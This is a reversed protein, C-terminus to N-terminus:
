YTRSVDIPSKPTPKAPNPIQQAPNATSANPPTRREMRQMVAYINDLTDAARTQMRLQERALASLGSVDMVSDNTAAVRKAEAQSTAKPTPAVNQMMVPTDSKSSPATYSAAMVTPAVSTAATSAPKSAAPPAAAIATKDKVGQLMLPTASAAVMPAAGGTAVPDAIGPTKALQQELSYLHSRRRSNGSDSYKPNDIAWRIYNKGLVRAAAEQDINPNALFADKTARYSSITEIEHRAFEAMATLSELGPKFDGNPLLLGRSAMLKILKDRRDGQWSFFGQNTVHNADDTHLGYLYKGNYSNERGVEATMAKAQAPSFGAKIFAQYVLLQNRKPDGKLNSPPPAKFVDAVGEIMSSAGAVAGTYLKGAGAALAGGGAALVGLGAKGVNVVGKGLAGAAGAIKAGAAALLGAAGAGLSGLKDKATEWWGKEVTKPKVGAAANVSQDNKDANDEIYDVADDYASKVDDVDLPVSEQGAFPSTSVKYPNTEVKLANVTRILDLKQKSLLVKDIEGLDSKGTLKFLETITGLYIPKFRHQFWMIWKELDEQQETDVGFIKTLEGLTKGTGLKAVQGPSVKVIKACEQELTIIKAVNEKDDHKYGYQAMRFRTLPANERTYHEYLKYGIYAATLALGVPSTIVGLGVRAVGLAVRGITPAARLLLKGTGLVARGALKAAGIVGKGLFGGVKGIFGVLTAASSAVTTILTAAGALLPAFKTILGGFISATKEAAGAGRDKMGGLLKAWRSKEEAREGAAAAQQARDKASGDRDGDGDTDASAKPKLKANLKDKIATTKDRMRELMGKRKAPEPAPPGMLEPEGSAEDTADAAGTDAEPAKDDAGDDKFGKSKLMKIITDLRNVVDKTSAFMSINVMDSFSGTISGLRKGGSKLLDTFFNMGKKAVDLVRKGAVMGKALALKALKAAFQTVTKFPKGQADVIGKKLDDLTLVVEIKEGDVQEIVGKIDSVRKVIAGSDRVRYVGMEMLRAYLRPKDLEDKVYVDEPGDFVEIIKNKLATAKERMSNVPSLAMDKLSRMRKTVMELITKGDPNFLGKQYDEISLVLNGSKDRVEGTIDSMMTITRNTNVDIYAGLRIAAGYIRPRLEGSVWVDTVHDQLKQKVGSATDMGWGAIGSVRNMGAKTANSGKTRLWGLIKPVAGAGRALGRAGAAGAREGFGMGRKRLDEIRKAYLKYEDTIAALEEDTVLGKLKAEIDKVSPIGAEFLASLELTALKQKLEDSINLSDTVHAKLKASSQRGFAAMHDGMQQANARLGQMDPMAMGSLDFNPMGLKLSLGGFDELQKLASRSLELAQDSYTKFDDHFRHIANEIVSESNLGDAPALSQSVGEGNGLNNLYRLLPVMGPLATSRANVVFERNALQANATDNAGSGPANVLEGSVRHIISRGGDFLGGQALGPGGGAPAGGAPAGAPAPPGITPQSLLELIKARDLNYTSGDAGLKVLGDEEMLGIQNQKAAKLVEKMADPLNNILSVYNNTLSNLKKRNALDPAFPDKTFNNDADLPTTDDFAFQTRAQNRIEDRVAADITTPFKFDSVLKAPDFDKGGDWALGIIYKRLEKTAEPSLATGDPDIQKMVRSTYFELTNKQASGAVRDRIKTKLATATEFKSSEFSFYEQEANADGTSIVKVERHIKSLWGPIVEEWTRITKNTMYAQKELEDVGSKQVMTQVENRGITSKLIDKGVGLWNFEDTSSNAFEKMRMPMRALKTMLDVDSASLIENAAIKKKIPDILKNIVYNSAMSGVGSGAINLRLDDVAADGGMDRVTDLQGSLSDQIDQAGTVADNIHSGISGFFSNIEGKAKKVIRQGIGRYWESMPETVRGFIQTKLQDVMKEHDKYKLIDPLGTNKSITTYATESIALHKEMTNLLRRSVFYHKFQLELSKRQYNANVQDNYDVLRKLNEQLQAQIMLNDTGQKLFATDKIQQEAKTQAERNKQAEMHANFISGLEVNTANAEVEDPTLSRAQQRSDDEKAFSELRKVLSDPLVAEVKPLILRTGRKLDKIIPKTAKRAEDLIEKAGTAVGDAMDLTTNYGEPLVSRIFRAQTSPNLLNEKVGDVFAGTFKTAPHRDDKPPESSFDGFGDDDFNEWDFDGFDEYGAKSM